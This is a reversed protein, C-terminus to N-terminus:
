GGGDMGMDNEGGGISIFGGGRTGVKEGGCALGLGIGSIGGIVFGPFWNGGSNGNVEVGVTSGVSENGPVPWDGSIMIGGGISLIEIVSTCVKNGFGCDGYHGGIAIMYCCDFGM